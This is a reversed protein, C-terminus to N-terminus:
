DKMVTPAGENLWTAFIESIKWEKGAYLRPRAIIYDLFRMVDFPSCQVMVELLKQDKYTGSSITKNMDSKIGLFYKGTFRIDAVLSDVLKREDSETWKLFINYRDFLPQEYVNQLRIFHSALIAAQGFYISSRPMFAYLLDGKKLPKGSENHSITFYYYAGKVLYCKGYGKQVVEDRNGNVYVGWILGLQKDQFKLGEPMELQVVKTSDNLSVMYDTIPFARLWTKATDTQAM